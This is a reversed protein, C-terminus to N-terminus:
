DSSLVTAPVSLVALQRLGIGMEDAFLLRVEKQELIDFPQPHRLTMSPEILFQFEIQSVRAVPSGVPENVRYLKSNRLVSVSNNENSEALAYRLTIPQGEVLHGVPEELPRLERLVCIVDEGFRPWTRMGEGHVTGDRHWRTYGCFQGNFVPESLIIDVTMRVSFVAEFWSCSECSKFRNRFPIVAPFREFPEM